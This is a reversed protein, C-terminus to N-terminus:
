AAWAFTAVHKYYVEFCMVHWPARNSFSLNSVM